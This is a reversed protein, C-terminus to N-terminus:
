MNHKLNTTYKNEQKADHKRKYSRNPKVAVLNKEAKEVIINYLNEREKDNKAFIIAIFVNKLWGALININTKYEYKPKKEKSKHKAKIKLNATNKIDQLVNFTYIQAYFDQEITIRTKGTFNEIHLKNKLIDYGIEIQWRKFYTEKMESEPILEKSVNSVLYEVEGTNLTVKTIRVDIFKQEQLEKRIEEDKIRYARKNCELKVWEDDTTMSNKEADYKCRSQLRFIYKVNLKELFWILELGPYGRDFIIISKTLDIIKGAEKINQMALEKENKNYDTIVADVMFGNEVDYIGSVQARAPNIQYSNYQELKYESRLEKTNPIEFVSGDIAFVYYDKYKKVEEPYNDYFDILYDKYLDIFIQPKLNLRQKSFAQKSITIEYSDNKNKLYQDLEMSTTRGKQLTLYWVYDEFTMKRNRTFANLTTKYESNIKSKVRIDNISRKIRKYSM